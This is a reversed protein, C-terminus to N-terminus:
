VRASFVGTVLEAPGLVRNALDSYGLFPGDALVASGLFAKIPWFPAVRFSLM